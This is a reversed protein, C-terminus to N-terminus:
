NIPQSPAAAKAGMGIREYREPLMAKLGFGYLVGACAVIVYTFPVVPIRVLWHDAPLGYLTPLNTLVLVLIVGLGVAALAPAICRHWLTEGSQRAPHRAFYIIVALATSAILLLVGLGGTTGVTYFLDLLPDAGALAFGIIVIAGVTTQAISGVVPAGSSPRVRGFAPPLVHERGLAFLYRATTNHYAIMAALLSTAFLAQAITVAVAGVHTQALAFFTQAGNQQATQVIRGPGAAVIMAWASTGYLIACGALAIYVVRPVTRAPERSEEIFVPATEFGIFGVIAIMLSAGVGSGTLAAPSLTGALGNASYLVDAADLIVIVAVEAGLLVALVRGNVSVHMVGLVAVVAWAALAVLWWPLSIGTAGQLFPAIAAGIAGYLGVQLLNYSALAIWAAAVGAPRGLGQAIYTYLAGASKSRRAMAVYGVSWLGLVVGALPFAWPLALSGTAAYAAASLGATVTLPAAAGGVFALISSTGLRGARLVGVPDHNNTM